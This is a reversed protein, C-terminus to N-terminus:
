DERDGLRGLLTGFLSIGSWGRGRRRGPSIPQPRGTCDFVREKQLAARFAAVTDLGTWRARNDGVRIVACRNNEGIFRWTQQAFVKGTDSGARRFRQHRNMPDPINSHPDGGNRMSKTCRPLATLGTHRFTRRIRKRHVNFQQAQHNRRLGANPASHTLHDAPGDIIMNCNSDRRRPPEGPKIALRFILAVRHPPIGGFGRPESKFGLCNVIPDSRGTPAQCPKSWRMYM